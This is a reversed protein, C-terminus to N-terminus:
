KSKFLLDLNHIIENFREITAETVMKSSNKKFLWTLKEDIMIDKGSYETMNLERQSNEQTEFEGKKMYTIDNIIVNCYGDEYTLHMNYTIYVAHTIIASSQIELYDTIRCTTSDENNTLFFGSYPNLKDNLYSNARINFDKKNLEYDFKISFVVEDNVVPISNTSLQLTQANFGMSSFFFIFLFCLKIIFDRGSLVTSINHIYM